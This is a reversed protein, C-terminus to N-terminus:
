MDLCSTLLALHEVLQDVLDATRLVGRVPEVRGHGLRQPQVACVHAAEVHDLAFAATVAPWRASAVPSVVPAM